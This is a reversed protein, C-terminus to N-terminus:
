ELAFRVRLVARQAVPQGDRMVPEFRWRRVSDLASKEFIERPLADRVVLDRTSGDPTITFEVDVWGEVGDRQADRPYVVAADRVRKLAAAQVVNAAFSRQQQVTALQQQLAQTTAMGPVLSDARSLYIAAEDIADAALAARARALLAFALRQQEARVEDTDPFQERLVMLAEYANAGAPEILVGRERLDVIRHLDDVGPSLLATPDPTPEATGHAGSELATSQLTENSSAENAISSTLDTSSPALADPTVEVAIGSPANVRNPAPAAVSRSLAILEVRLADLRPYDPQARQLAALAAVARPADRAQLAEVVRADLATAVRTVGAAAQAHDPQLALVARFYDLANDGRPEFLRGTAYAIQARALQDAIQEARTPANVSSHQVSLPAPQDASQWLLLGIIVAILAVVGALIRGIQPRAAFTRVTAMGIPELNRLEEYRRTAAAIFLGARAPSVPKHLFRYILGNSVLSAVAGEEDRRGTVMLVLEPFQAQLRDLLAAADGRLAGLDAILIGCRGGVLLDVAIEASQAHWLAHEPGSAERLTALLGADATLVVVDLIHGPLTAGAHVAALNSDHRTSRM